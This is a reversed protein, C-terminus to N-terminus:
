EQKDISILELEYIITANPGIKGNPAREGFGLDPPIFLKWKSGPKMLQLAEKWAPLGNEVNISIPQKRNYSNDFVEGDLTSGIVNISVKNSLTPSVGKGDTLIIYQLGSKLIRVGPKTKNELLFKEGEEKNQKSKKNYMEMYYRQVIKYTSDKNILLEENNLVSQLASSFMNVNFNSFGQNSYNNGADIGLCYFVSDETNKLKIKKSKQSYGFQSIFLIITIFLLNINKM